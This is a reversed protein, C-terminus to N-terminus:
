PTARRDPDDVSCTGFYVLLAEPHAARTRELLRRERAFVEPRTELSNSVGSAFVVVGPEGQFAGFAQAMMGDGIVM